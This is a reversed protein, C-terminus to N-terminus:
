SCGEANWYGANREAGELKAPQHRGEGADHKDPRDLLRVDVIEAM